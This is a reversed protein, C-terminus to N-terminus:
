LALLYPRDIQAGIQDLLAMGQQMLILGDSLPGTM